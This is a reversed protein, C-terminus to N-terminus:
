LISIFDDERNDGDDERNDGDDEGNDGDDERNDGDYERNDGYILNFSVNAEEVDSNTPQFPDQELEVDHRVEM